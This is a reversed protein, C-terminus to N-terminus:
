RISSTHAWIRTVSVDKGRKRPRTNADMMILLHKGKPVEGVTGGLATWFLDQDRVSKHGDTPAYAAVFSIGNSKRKFNQRVKMLRASIYEMALGDKEDQLIPEKIALGVGHQDRDETVRKGSESCCIAYGAATFGTQGDRRSEQLEVIYCGKQRCVELIKEVHDFGNTGNFTLTHVNFTGMILEGLRTKM